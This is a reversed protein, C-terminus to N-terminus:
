NAHKFRQVKYAVITRGMTFEKDPFCLHDATTFTWFMAVVCKCASFISCHQTHCGPLSAPLVAEDPLELSSTSSSLSSAISTSHSFVSTPSFQLVPNSPAETSLSSHRVGRKQPELKDLSSQVNITIFTHRVWLTDFAHMVSNNHRNELTINGEGFEKGALSLTAVAM